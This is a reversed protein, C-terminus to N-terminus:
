KGRGNLFILSVRGYKRIDAINININEINKLIEEQRDTELVIIGNEELMKKSTIIKLSEIAYDTKYPPDLFILDFKENSLEELVKLYDKNIVISKSKLKTKELNKNIINIADSSNDSFIVKSAGRSLCEIGLAGSGAFLDLVNSDVINNQIINFLSEKVRDLTPRTNEGELSFLKSGRSNGSIVRM